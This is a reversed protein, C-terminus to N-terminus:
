GLEHGLEELDIAGAKSKPAFRQKEEPPTDPGGKSVLDNKDWEDAWAPPNTWDIHELGIQRTLTAAYAYVLLDWSENRQNRPNIWGKQPDKHEVTLETYFSDPLWGPFNIRGGFAETRDLMKDVADKLTNVNLMLVPIEGRAGAFRDKKQADPYRLAVRAAGPASDGKVLQFRAAWGPQWEYSGMEAVVDDEPTHPNKGNKLWRVFNYATSTVGEAGGSDCLVMKIAMERESGDLLPYTKALVQEGLLKWDELYGGPKVWLHDGQTDGEEMNIRKSKRIDFRDIVYIDGGQGIGHVQVVFRMKQVDITAVLFRAGHPVHRHGQDKARAKLAEPLRAEAQAKPTYPEGQDTNVTAKLTTETGTEAYEKEGSLFKLVLDRWTSFAAAPGKLWFSGVDSRYPTGTARGDSTLTMGDRLWVGNKNLEYKGPRGEHPDHRYDFGCHPCRMIAQEASEMLDSSKPYELLKFAPEFWQRCKPNVCHWYWRRRDGRNYLKLIGGAVPPAEHRSKAVYKPNELGFGPSAEAVCMGHSRFTRKRAWALDYPEGEGDVDQDMRDYDSLWLRPIPKGSLENISPWSLGLLMGNKYKKDYTNDSNRRSILRAGVEPSHRHLKDVRRISFDRATAQIKEVLLMDAPDCVVSYTLWNLFMDTKGCQAPGVFVMGTFVTSTLLDMPEVLYPAKENLWPGTYSGPNNLKRYKAAAESVTLREPPRVGEATHIVIEQLSDFLTHITM